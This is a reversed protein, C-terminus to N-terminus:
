EELLLSEVDYVEEPISILNQASLNLNGNERALKLLKQLGVTLLSKGANSPKRFFDNNRGRGRGKM